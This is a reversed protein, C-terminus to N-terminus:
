VSPSLDWFTTEFIKNGKKQTFLKPSFLFAGREHFRLWKGWFHMLSKTPSVSSVLSHRCQLNQQRKECIESEGLVRLSDMEKNALEFVQHLVASLAKTM